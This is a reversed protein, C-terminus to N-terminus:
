FTFILAMSGGPNRGFDPAKSRVKSSKNHRIRTSLENGIFCSKEDKDRFSVIWMSWKKVTILEEYELGFFWEQNSSIRGENKGKKIINNLTRLRNM